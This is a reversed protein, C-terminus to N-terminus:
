RAPPTTRDLCCTIEGMMETLAPFHDRIDAWWTLGRRISAQCAAPDVEITAEACRIELRLNSLSQRHKELERVLAALEPATMDAGRGQNLLDDTVM